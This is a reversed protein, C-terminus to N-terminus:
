ADELEHSTQQDAEEDGEGDNCRSMLFLILITVTWFSYLYRQVGGTAEPRWSSILPWSLIVFVGIMLLLRLVLHRCLQRM